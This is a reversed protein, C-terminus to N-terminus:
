AVATISKKDTVDCQNTGIVPAIKINYNTGTVPPTTCVVATLIMNELVVPMIGGSLNNCFQTGDSDEAIVRINQLDATDKGRKVVVIVNSDSNDLTANEINLDVGICNSISSIQDSEKQVTSKVVQWVIVVGVLVLLIILLVTITEAQSRKSNLLKINFLFESHSNARKNNFM